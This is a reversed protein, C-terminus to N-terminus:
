TWVHITPFLRCHCFIIRKVCIRVFVYLARLPMFLKSYGEITTRYHYWTHYSAACSEKELHKIRESGRGIRSKQTRSNNTSRMLHSLQKNNGNVYWKWIFAKSILQQQLYFVWKWYVRIKIKSMIVFLWVFGVLLTCFDM